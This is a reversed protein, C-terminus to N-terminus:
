LPQAERQCVEFSLSVTAPNFSDIMLLMTLTVGGVFVVSCVDMCFLLWRVTAMCFFWASSHDNQHADFRSEFRKQTKFARISTLGDLSSSLLTFVFSKLLGECIKIRRACSIYIYRMALILVIIILIPLFTWLNVALLMCAIGIDTAIIGIAEFATLPILEDIIGM